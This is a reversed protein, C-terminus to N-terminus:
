YDILDAWMLIERIDPPVMAEFGRFTASKVNDRGVSKELALFATVAEQRGAEAMAFVGLNNKKWNEQPTELINWEMGEVVNLSRGFDWVALGSLGLNTWVKTGDTQITCGSKVYVKELMDSKTAGDAKQVEQVMLRVKNSLYQPAAAAQQSQALGAIYQRTWFIKGMYKFKSKIIQSSIYSIKKFLRFM